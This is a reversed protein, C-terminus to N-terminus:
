KNYYYSDEEWITIEPTVGPPPEPGFGYGCRQCQTIYGFDGKLKSYIKSYMCDPNQCYGAFLM